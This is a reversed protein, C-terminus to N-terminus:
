PKWSSIYGRGSRLLKAQDAAYSTIALKDSMSKPGKNKKELVKPKNIGSPTMRISNEEEMVLSDMVGCVDAGFDEDCSFELKSALADRRQEKESDLFYELTRILSIKINKYFEEKVWDKGMPLPFDGVEENVSGERQPM